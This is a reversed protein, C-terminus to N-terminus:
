ESCEKCVWRISCRYPLSPPSTSTQERWQRFSLKSSGRLASSSSNPVSSRGLTSTSTTKRRGPGAAPPRGCSWRTPPSKCTSWVPRAPRCLCSVLSSWQWPTVCVCRVGAASSRASLTRSVSAWHRAVHLKLQFVLLRAPWVLLAVM